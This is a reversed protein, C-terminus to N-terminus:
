LSKYYFILFMSALHALQAESMFNNILSISHDIDRIHILFFSEDSLNKLLVKM